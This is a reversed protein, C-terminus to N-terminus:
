IPFNLVSKTVKIKQDLIDKKSDITRIQLREPTNLVNKQLSCHRLIKIYTRTQIKHFRSFYDYFM